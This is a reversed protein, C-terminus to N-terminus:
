CCVSTHKGTNIDFEFGLIPRKIGDEVVCDWYVTVLKQIMSKAASPVMSNIQLKDLMKDLM